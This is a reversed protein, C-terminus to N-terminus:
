IKRMKELMLKSPIFFTNSYYVNYGWSAIRVQCPISAQAAILPIIDKDKNKNNQSGDPNFYYIVVESLFSYNPKTQNKAEVLGELRINIAHDTSFNTDRDLSCTLVPTLQNKNEYDKFAHELDVSSHFNIVFLSNPGREFSSLTLEAPPINATKSCAACLLAALCIFARYINM